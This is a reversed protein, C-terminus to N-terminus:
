ADGRVSVSEGLSHALCATDLCQNKNRSLRDGRRRWRQMFRHLMGAKAKDQLLLAPMPLMYGYREGWKAMLWQSAREYSDDLKGTSLHVLPADIAM